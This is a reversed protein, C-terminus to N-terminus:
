YWILYNNDTYCIKENDILWNIVKIVKEEKVEKVHNVIEDISHANDTIFPKIQKLVIDFELESLELKNRELCVDCSGCRKANTEGFYSLLLLSRCKTFSSVYHIVEELRSKALNKQDLYIEKSIRIDKIDVRETPYIIQPKNSQPIYNLINFKSLMSLLEMTKEKSIDARKAIESENINVFDSFVGGYSRLIVKIFDDYQPNKVQFRYLEERGINFHLRSPNLLAENSFIYGAKELFKLASFVTIPRLKYNNCFDNIDFDFSIDKGCGVALNFYNGLSNYINKIDNLEPYSNEFNTQIDLIDSQNYLLIAYSKIEDRGGRGAEQFYNELCDPLDYHVVFRVNPKDIGMGFANTAVIIRKKEQMWLDQRFDRTKQDLGAHYNTASIKNKELFDAIEKTKKRNRVYIIGVGKVKNAIKILRNLKDEEKIVAYILNKREFSKQFVNTTKFLLKEQIDKVVNPTATATLALVPVNPFFHRIESIRLYPPRFDYGWQSICHAEDVAFLNIKMKRLRLKTFESELREPSIYLFKIDSYICNDLAIEIESYHMGSYVAVANIGRKKLNEVQDKMLAILPSIVVCIGDKLMAPVQFCLSKGGGTPLLALTDKGSIVSNIIEEQMPRFTSYGWHKILIQHITM